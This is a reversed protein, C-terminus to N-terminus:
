STFVKSYKGFAFSSPLEIPDYAPRATRGTVSSTDPKKIVARSDDMNPMPKVITKEVAQQVDLM